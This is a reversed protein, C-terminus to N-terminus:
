INLKISITLYKWFHNLLKYELSIHLLELQELNEDFKDTKKLKLLCITTVKYNLSTNAQLWIITPMEKHTQQGNSYRGKHFTQELM